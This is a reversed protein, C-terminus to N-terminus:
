NRKQGHIIPMMSIILPILILLCFSFRVFGTTSYGDYTGGLRIQEMAIKEMIGSIGNGKFTEKIYKEWKSV